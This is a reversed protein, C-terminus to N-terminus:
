NRPPAGTQGAQARCLAEARSKFLAAQSADITGEDAMADIGAVREAICPAAPDGSAVSATDPPFLAERHVGAIAALVLVLIGLAVLRAIPRDLFATRPARDSM